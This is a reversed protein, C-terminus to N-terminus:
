KTTITHQKTNVSKPINPSLSRQPQNKSSANPPNNKKINSDNNKEKDNSTKRRLQRRYHIEDDLEDYSSEEKLIADLERDDSDYYDKEVSSSNKSSSEANTALDSSRNNIVVKSALKTKIKESSNGNDNYSRFSNIM